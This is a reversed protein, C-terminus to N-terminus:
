CSESLMDIRFVYNEDKPNPVIYYNVNLGGRRWAMADSGEFAPDGFATSLAEKLTALDKQTYVAGAGRYSVGVLKSDKFVPWPFVRMTGLEVAPRSTISICEDGLEFNFNNKQQSSSLIESIDTGWTYGNWGEEPPMASDFKEVSCASLLAACFALAACRSRIPISMMTIKEQNFPNM